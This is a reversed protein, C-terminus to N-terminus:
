VVDDSDGKQPQAAKYDLEIWEAVAHLGNAHFGQISTEVLEKLRQNEAITEPIDTADYCALRDELQKIQEAQQKIETQLKAYEAFHVWTGIKSAVMQQHTWDPSHRNM